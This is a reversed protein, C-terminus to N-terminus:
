VMSKAYESFTKGSNILKTFFLKVSLYRGYEKENGAEMVLRDIEERTFTILGEKVLWKYPAAMDKWNYKGTKFQSLLGDVYSISDHNTSKTEANICEQLKNRQETYRLDQWQATFAAHWDKMALSSSLKWGNSQYHSWFKEAYWETFSAPWAPKKYQIFVLVEEQTPPKM